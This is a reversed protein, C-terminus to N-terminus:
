EDAWFVIDNPNCVADHGAEQSLDFVFFYSPQLQSCNELRINDKIVHRAVAITFHSMLHINFGNKVGDDLGPQLTPIVEYKFFISVRTMARALCSIGDLFPLFIMM